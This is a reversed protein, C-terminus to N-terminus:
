SGAQTGPQLTVRTHCAILDEHQRAMSQAAHCKCLCLLLAVAELLGQDEPVGGGVCVCVVAQLAACACSHTAQM